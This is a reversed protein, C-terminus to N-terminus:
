VLLRTVRVALDYRAGAFGSAFIRVLQPAFGWVGVCVLVCVIGWVLTVQDVLRRAREPDKSKHRLYWPVILTGLGGAFILGLVLNPVMMGVLFADTQGTAGFQRAIVVERAFGVLKSLFTVVAILVAAQAVSQTHLLHTLSSRRSTKTNTNQDNESLVITGGRKSIVKTTYRRSRASDLKNIRQENPVLHYM